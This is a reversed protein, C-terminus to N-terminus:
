NKRSYPHGIRYAGRIEEKKFRKPRVERLRTSLASYEGATQAPVSISEKNDLQNGWPIENRNDLWEPNQGSHNFKLGDQKEGGWKKGASRGKVTKM